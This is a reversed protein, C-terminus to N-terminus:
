LSGWGARLRDIFAEPALSEPPPSSKKSSGQVSSTIAQTLAAQSRHQYLCGHGLERVTQAIFGHDAAIVPKGAAIANSLIGSSFRFSRYPLLIWDAAAFYEIFDPESVFGSVVKAMGKKELSSLRARDSPNLRDNEGVRLLLPRKVRADLSPNEFAAIVDSLGKRKESSGIHLFIIRDDPLGFHRRAGTQDMTPMKEWPDPLLTSPIAPNLRALAQVAAPDLFFLRGIGAAPHRLAHHIARRQRLRKDLPPLWRYRRDLAYPHFWIGSVPCPFPPQCTLLDPLFDDMYAFFVRDFQRERCLDAAQAIIASPSTGDPAIIDYLDPDLGRRQFHALIAPDGPPALLSVANGEMARLILSLYFARHGVPRAEVILTRSM